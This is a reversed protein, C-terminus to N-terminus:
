RRTRRRLLTLGLVGFGALAAYTSPEPISYSLMGSTESFQYNGMSWIGSTKTFGQVTFTGGISELLTSMDAILWTNGNTTNAGSLDFIFTGNLALAGTGSIGNNVHNAGIYFTMTSGSALTLTGANVTTNGTYTNTDALTQNFIGGKVLSLNGTIATTSTTNGLFSRDTSGSLTLVSATASSNTVTRTGATSGSHILSALQQDRGNLNLSSNDATGGMTLATGTPLRNNGGDLKVTGRYIQTAGTYTNAGSLVVTGGNASFFIGQSGSIVGNVTLQSSSNATGIRVSSAGLIVNGAWEATGSAQLSGFNSSGAGNLTVTEGTVTVGNTLILASSSGAAVTTENGTGSAGLAANSSITVIGTVATTGTYTNSGSLTLSGTTNTISVGQTGALKASVTGTRSPLNNTITPTSGSALTLIQSGSVNFNNTNGTTGQFSIAGITRATDVTISYSGATGAIPGFTATFGSGDAITSSAWNGPTDWSGSGALTWTGNSNAAHLFPATSVLAAILAPVAFRSFRSISPMPRRTKSPAVRGLPPFVSRLATRLDCM